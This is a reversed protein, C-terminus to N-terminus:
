LRPTGSPNYFIAQLKKVSFLALMIKILDWPIFPIVCLMLASVINSKMVLCYWATGVCYCFIVSLTMFLAMYKIKRTKECVMGSIFAIIIYGAIYGGTPGAIVGFGGRFGSFVPVGVMGLLIYVIVSVTGYKKGLLGGCLLVGFIGMNLPVPQIPVAIQSMIAIIASFLACYILKKTKMKKAM